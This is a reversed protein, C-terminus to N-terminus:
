NLRVLLVPVPSARIVGEAISGLLLHQLGKRGHTGMVILDASWDGAERAIADAVDEGLSQTELLRTEIALNEAGAARKAHELAKEGTKVWAKEIATRDVFEANGLIYTEDVVYIVRLLAQQDKALRIAEQLAPDSKKGGDTAVLIRRYM